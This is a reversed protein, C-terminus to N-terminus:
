IAGFAAKVEEFKFSNIRTEIKKVTDSRRVYNFDVSPNKIARMFTGLAIVIGIGEL